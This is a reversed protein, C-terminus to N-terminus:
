YLRCLKIYIMTPKKYQVGVQMFRMNGRSFIERPFQM